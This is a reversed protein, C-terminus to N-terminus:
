AGLLYGAVFGAMMAVAVRRQIDKFTEPIITISVVAFVAGAALAQAGGVVNDSVESLVTGGLITVVALAAGISALLKTAGSGILRAAGYSEVVNGFVVGALLAVGLEGDVVTLGLALSEPVGDILLGAALSRGEQSGEPMMMRGTKAAHMADRMEGLEPERHLWWDAAVYIATGALLGAATIATGAGRDADPVLEFSIAAMLLGGGFATLGSGAMASLHLRSAALAGAVLSLGVVAAVAVAEGV